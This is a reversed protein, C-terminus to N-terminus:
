EIVYNYTITANTIAENFNEIYIASWQEETGCYYVNTINSCEAFAGYGINTVSSSIIVTTIYDFNYFQNMDINTIDETIVLTTLPSYKNGNYEHTGNVDLIYFNDVYYVFRNDSNPVNCNIYDTMTGNYYLNELKYCSEVFNSGLYKVSAPVVINVLNECGKFAGRSSGINRGSYSLYKLSNPLVVNTLGICNQFAGDGISVLNETFSINTLSACESFAFPYIVRTKQSITYLGQVYEKEVKILVLEKNLENGLYKAHDYEYYELSTCREFAYAGINEISNPISINALNTCDSFAGDEIVLLGEPLEINTLGTCGSFADSEIVTLTDPIIVNTITKNNEFADMYISNVIMGNFYRPIVIETDKCSGIGYVSALKTEGDFVFQLGESPKPDGCSICINDSNYSCGTAPIEEPVITKMECVTCYKGESMGPLYCTAPVEPIIEETHGAPEIREQEVLKENCVSCHKGDTRGSNDCTPAYGKDIVEAHGLAPIETQVILVENCRSCHKGETLGTKTCTPTTASDIVEIHGGLSAINEENTEGCKSCTEVWIGEETCTASKSEHGQWMHECQNPKEEGGVVEGNDNCGVLSILSIFMFLSLIIKKM